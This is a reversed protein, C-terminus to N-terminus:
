ECVVVEFGPDSSPRDTAHVGVTGGGCGGDDGGAWCDAKDPREM